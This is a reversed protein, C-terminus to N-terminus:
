FFKFDQILKVQFRPPPPDPSSVLSSLIFTQFCHKLLSPRPNSLSSRGSREVIISDCHLGSSSKDRKPEGGMHSHKEGLGALEIGIHIHEHATDTLQENHAYTGGALLLSFLGFFVLAKRIFMALPQLIM